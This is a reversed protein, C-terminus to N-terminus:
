KAVAQQIRGVSRVELASPGGLVIVQAREFRLLKVHLSGISAL